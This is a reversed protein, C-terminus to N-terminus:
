VNIIFLCKFNTWRDTRNSYRGRASTNTSRAVRRYISTHTHTRLLHRNWSCVFIGSVRELVLGVGSGPLDGELVEVEVELEWGVNGMRSRRGTGGCGRMGIFGSILVGDGIDRCVEGRLFGQIVEHNIGRIELVDM